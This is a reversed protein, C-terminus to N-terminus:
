RIVLTEGDSRFIITGATRTELIKIDSKKLLAMVDEHPHGYRNNKGASIVVHAPAVAALFLEGTSTKSGHHGAKLVEAALADGDLSVLYQEISKPADGTLLFSIDGYTVLLVISSSNSEAESMDRDPFLVLARAGGGLHIDMGRRAIITKAGSEEVAHALAKYAGTDSTNGSELFLDTKFRSLVEPLGGIHDQDPHTALVIDITRDSFPMMAGLERLVKKNPGGDVLMQNGTPGEIFIADGQGVDLFAVTLEGREGTFVAHWIGATALFLFALLFHRSRIM